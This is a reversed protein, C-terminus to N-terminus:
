FAAAITINTYVRKSLFLVKYKSALLSTPEAVGKIGFFKTAMSDSFSEELTNIDDKQFFELELNNQKAYELLGQEDKKAEFSALKLINKRNLSHEFCFRDIAKTIEKATTNKNMGIGIIFKPHLQLDDNALFQPTIYVKPLHNPIKQDIEFFEFNEQKYGKYNKILEFILPYSIVAVKQKNLITNSVKALSKLNSISFDHEKAFNDFAFRDLQDSATTIFNIANPIKKCLENALANAGGLHGSLLPLIKNLELNIVLIAPDSSKDKLFPAIKRVVAGTALLFIIADSQWAEELIDDLKEFRIFNEKQISKNYIKIDHNTLYSTLKKASELSPENITVISIKM